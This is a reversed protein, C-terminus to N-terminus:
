GSLDGSAMLLKSSFVLEAQVLEDPVAKDRALHCRRLKLMCCVADTQFIGPFRNGAGLKTCGAHDDAEGAEHGEIDFGPVIDFFFFATKQRRDLLLFRQAVGINNRGLM